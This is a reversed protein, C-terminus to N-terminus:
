WSAEKECGYQSMFFEVRTLFSNHKASQYWDNFSWINKSPSLTSNALFAFISDIPFVIELPNEDGEYFCLRDIQEKSDIQIIKGSVSDGNSKVLMPYDENEVYLATYDKLEFTPKKILVIKNNPLVLDLVEQSLLSGFIFIKM